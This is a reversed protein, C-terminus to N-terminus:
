DALLKSPVYLFLDDGKFIIGRAQGVDMRYVGSSVSCAGTVERSLVKRTPLKKSPLPTFSLGELFKSAQYLLTLWLDRVLKISQCALPM